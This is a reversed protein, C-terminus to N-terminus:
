EVLIYLQKENPNTGRLFTLVRDGIYIDDWSAKRITDDEVNYIVVSEVSRTDGQGKIILYRNPTTADDTIIGQYDSEGYKENTEFLIAVDDIAAITGNIILKANSEAFNNSSYDEKIDEARCLMGWLSCNGSIPNVQYMIMDGRQIDAWEYTDQAYRATRGTIGAIKTNYFPEDTDKTFTLNPGTAKYAEIDFGTVKTKVTETLEDYSTDVDTVFMYRYNSGWTKSVEADMEVVIFKYWGTMTRNYAEFSGFTSEKSWDEITSFRCKEEDDSVCVVYSFKNSIRLTSKNEDNAVKITQYKLQTDIETTTYTYSLRLMDEETENKPIADGKTTDAVIISALNDGTSDLTYMILQKKALKGTDDSLTNYLVEATTRSANEESGTGYKIKQDYKLEYRTFGSETLIKLYVIEESQDYAISTMLGYHAEDFKLYGAIRENKDLYFSSEKSMMSSIDVGPVIGYEEGEVVAINNNSDVRTLTGEAQASWVYLTNVLGDKSKAYNIVANEDILNTSMFNSGYILSYSKQEEGTDVSILNDANEKFYIKDGIVNKVIYADYEWILVVDIKGDDDNDILKLEGYEPTVDALSKAIPAGNYVYYATDSVEYSESQGDIKVDIEDTTSSSKIEDFMVDVTVVDKDKEIYLIQGDETIYYKVQMGLLDILKSMTTEYPVFDIVIGTEEDAKDGFIYGVKNGTVLGEKETLEFVEEMFLEESEIFNVGETGIGSLEIYHSFLMNYILAASEGKTLEEENDVDVDLELNEAVRVYADPYDGIIDAYVDYGLATIILKVAESYSILKEPDYIEQSYGNIIKEGVLFSVASFSSKTQDVDTFYQVAEGANEKMNLAEALAIAFNGRSMTQNQTDVTFGNVGLTTIFKIQESYDAAATATMTPINISVILTALMVVLSILQRFKKM